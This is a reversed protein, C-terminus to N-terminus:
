IWVDNLRAMLRNMEEDFSGCVKIVEYDTELFYNRIYITEEENTKFDYEDLLNGVVTYVDVIIEDDETVLTDDDAYYYLTKKDYIEYEKSWFEERTVKEVCSM